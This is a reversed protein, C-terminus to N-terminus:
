YISGSRPSDVVFVNGLFHLLLKVEREAYRGRGNRTWCLIFTNWIDDSHAVGIAILSVSYKQRAPQFGFMYKGLARRPNM